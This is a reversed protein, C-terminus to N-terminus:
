CPILLSVFANLLSLHGDIGHAEYFVRVNLLYKLYRFRECHGFTVLEERAIQWTLQNFIVYTEPVIQAEKM